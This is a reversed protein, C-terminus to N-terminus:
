GTTGLYTVVLYCLMANLLRRGGVVGPSYINSKGRACKLVAKAKECSCAVLDVTRM